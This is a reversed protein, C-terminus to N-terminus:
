CPYKQRVVYVAVKEAPAHLARWADPNKKLEALILDRLDGPRFDAPVCFLPVAGAKVYEENAGQLGAMMGARFWSQPDPPADDPAAKSMVNEYVDPKPGSNWDHAGAPLAAVVAYLLIVTGIVNRLLDM